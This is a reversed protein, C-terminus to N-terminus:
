LFRFLHKIIESLNLENLKWFKNSYFNKDLKFGQVFTSVLRHLYSLILNLRTNFKRKTQGGVQM